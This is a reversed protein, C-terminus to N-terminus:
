GARAPRPRRAARHPAPPASRSRTGNGSGPGGLGCAAAREKSVKYLHAWACSLGSRVGGCTVLADCLRALGRARALVDRSLPDHRPWSLKHYLYTTFLGSIRGSEALCPPSRTLGEAVCLRSQRM